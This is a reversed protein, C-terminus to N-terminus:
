ISGKKKIPNDFDVFRIELDTPDHGRERLWKLSNKRGEPSSDSVVLFIGNKREESPGYDISFPGAIDTVPLLEIVPAQKHRLAGAEAARAGGIREREAQIHPNEILFDEAEESAPTPTLSVEISQNEVKKTLSDDEYGKLKATFTYEGPKLFVNGQDFNKGNIEVTSNEPIAVISVKTEGLRSLHLIIFYLLILVIIFGGIIFLRREKHPDQM